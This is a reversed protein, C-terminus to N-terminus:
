VDGDEQRYFADRLEDLPPDRVVVGVPGEGLDAVAPLGGVRTILEDM